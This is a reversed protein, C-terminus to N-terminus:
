AARGRGSMVCEEQLSDHLADMVAAPANQPWVDVAQLRWSGDFCLGFSLRGFGLGLRKAFDRLAGPDAVLSQGVISGAVIWIDHRPGTSSGSAWVPDNAAQVDPATAAGKTSLFRRRTSFSFDAVPVGANLAHSLWGFPEVPRGVMGLALPSNVVPVKLGEVASWFLATAESLAYDGDAQTIGSVASVPIERVRNFVCKVGTFIPVRTARISFSADVGGDHGSHDICYHSLWNEILLSKAAHGFRRALEDCVPDYFHRLMLLM